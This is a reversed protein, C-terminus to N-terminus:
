KVAGDDGAEGGSSRKRVGGEEGRDPVVSSENGATSRVM